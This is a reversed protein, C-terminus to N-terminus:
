ATDQRPTSLDVAALRESALQAFQEVQEAAYARRGLGIAAVSASCLGGFPEWVVDGPTTCAQIILRMLELPKQNHHTSQKDGLPSVNSAARIGEGRYREPGSVAPHQWVNSHGHQYNWRYRQQEWATAIDIGPEIQFYPRGEPKGHNNAYLALAVFAETPPPYWLHCGTLWKRSAANQVGCAKNARHFPLGSRTWESRLWQQTTLPTGEVQKWLAPRSYMVCLETVTPFRRLTGSNVRGAIHGIGKDWINSQEYVWGYRTLLPHLTAWGLETNWLWLTSLPTAALSWAAIHPEYWDPLKDIRMPDGPFGEGVGYAGDSIIAVPSPWSEVVDLVDGNYLSYNM